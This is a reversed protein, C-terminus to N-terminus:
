IHVIDFTDGIEEEEAYRTDTILALSAVARMLGSRAGAVYAPSRTIYVVSPAEMGRFLMEHTVLLGGTTLWRELDPRQEYRKSKARMIPRGNGKYEEVGGDYLMAINSILSAVLQPSIGCGCLIATHSNTPVLHDLTHQLSRKIAPYDILDTWGTLVCFPRSGVVTSRRGVPLISVPTQFCNLTYERVMAPDSADVINASNRMTLGLQRVRYSPCHQHLHNTLTSLSMLGMQHGYLFGLFDTTNLSVWALQVRQALWALSSALESEEGKAIKELDKASVPTEDM